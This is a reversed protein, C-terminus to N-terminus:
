GVRKVKVFHWGDDNLRESTAKYIRTEGGDNIVLYVYGGILEVAIFQNNNGGNYLLLGDADKTKFMFSVEMDEVAELTSLTAYSDM